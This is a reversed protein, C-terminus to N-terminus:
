SNSYNRGGVPWWIDVPMIEHAYFDYFCVPWWIMTASYQRNSQPDQLGQLVALLYRAGIKVSCVLSSCWLQKQM